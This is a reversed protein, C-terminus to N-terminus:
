KRYLQFRPFAIGLTYIAAVGFFVQMGLVTNASFIWLCLAFVLCALVSGVNLALEILFMYAIRKGTMDATDFMGRTFAMSYGTTATENGVNLMAIGAPTSMFPRALHLLSNAFVSFRLLDRGRRRDILRGFMYAAIFSTVFTVSTLAGIKLYLDDGSGVFVTLSIFLIWVTTSTFVDFGIASQARLSRWTTRWPFGSFVLKQGTKVQEASQMLPWSALAFIIAAVWMTAEVGFLFAVIGGLLPSLATTSKELVQMYGLEKGAHESNKVKSFDVLYCLDYMTVSWAQVLGFIILAPVGYEPVFTFAALAPIYLINSLLIGHKPGFRAAFRAAPYAVLAKVSFYCAFYCAIFLLSYGNQYMFLAIFLSIMRLALLRMTRSAYLEAVESFTAYRWFHRRKFLKALITQFM